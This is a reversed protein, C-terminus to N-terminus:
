ARSTFMNKRNLLYIQKHTFLCTSMLVENLLGTNTLYLSSMLYVNATLNVITRMLHVNAWKTMMQENLSRTGILSCLGM